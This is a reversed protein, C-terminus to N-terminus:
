DNAAPVSTYWSSPGSTIPTIGLETRWSAVPKDWGDEWRAGMLPKCARAMQIGAGVFDIAQQFGHAQQFALAVATLDIMAFAPYGYQYATVGIVGLEGGGVMGFGTVVHHIDHTKRVRMICYDTDTKIPRDRYFHPNFGQTGLLKAYTHGLTGVPYRMLEALDFDPTTYGQSILRGMAPDSKMREVCAGMQPSDHFSDELDFVTETRRGGSAIFGATMSFRELAPKLNEYGM